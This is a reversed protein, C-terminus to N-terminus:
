SVLTRARGVKGAIPKQCSACHGKPVTAIGLNQLDQELGGLMSDLSAKHDQKDSVPKKSADAKAAVQVLFLVVFLTIRQCRRCPRTTKGQVEELASSSNFM